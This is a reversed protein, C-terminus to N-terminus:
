YYYNRFIELIKKSDKLYDENTILLKKGSIESDLFDQSAYIKATSNFNFDKISGKWYAVPCGQLALCQINIHNQTDETLIYIPKSKDSNNYIFESTISYKKIPLLPLFPICDIFQNFILNNSKLNVKHFDDVSNINQAHQNYIFYMTKIDGSYIALDLKVENDYSALIKNDQLEEKSAPIISQKKTSGPTIVNAGLSEINETSYQFTATNSSLIATVRFSILIVVITTIIFNFLKKVMPYKRVFNIIRNVIRNKDSSTSKSTNLYKPLRRKKM